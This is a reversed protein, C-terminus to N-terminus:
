IVQDLQLFNIIEFLFEEIFSFFIIYVIVVFVMGYMFINYFIWFLKYKRVLVVGLFYVDDILNFYFFNVNEMLKNMGWYYDWCSM